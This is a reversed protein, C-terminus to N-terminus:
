RQAVLSDIVKDLLHSLTDLEENTLGSLAARDSAVWSDHIRENIAKGKESLFVLTQRLDHENDKRIVLGDREMKQLTVSVTPPKLNAAKVLELQTVGPHLVSLHYLLSRYSCPLGEDESDRRTRERHLKQADYIRSMATYAACQRREPLEDIYEQSMPAKKM